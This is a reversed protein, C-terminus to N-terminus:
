VALAGREAAPVALPDDREVAPQIMALIQQLREGNSRLLAAQGVGRQDQSGIFLPPRVTRDMQLALEDECDPVAATLFQKARPVAEPPPLKVIM